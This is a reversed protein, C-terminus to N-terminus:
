ALALALNEPQIAPSELLQRLQDKARALRSMVTGMPIKLTLSIQIYSLGQVHRLEVIQSSDPNLKKKLENLLAMQQQKQEELDENQVRETAMRRMFMELDEEASALMRGRKRLRAYCLRLCIQRLWAYIPAKFVYDKLKPLAIILTDQVIDEADCDQGGLFYMSARLLRPRFLKIFKEEAEPNGNIVQAVLEQEENM